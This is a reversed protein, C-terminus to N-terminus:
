FNERRTIEFCYAHDCPKRNPRTIHLGENSLKWEIKEKSGILKVDLIEGEYLKDMSQIKFNKNPWGLSIAFLKNGKTTFRFDKATYKIKDKNDSFPGSVNMKTPGEGYQDWTQTDFIAKGNVELWKGIGKLINKDKEPITGDPKPGINLLMLGNKSVNDILYHVLDTISKYKSGKMYAWASGDHVTTDTIWNYHTLESERGLELDLIGSGPPLDHWKYSIVVERNWEKEKNYYYSLFDKRYKEHIYRLGFDFWVYDPRYNDVVEKLRKLWRDHFVKSPKDQKEYKKGWHEPYVAQNQMNETNHLEGYLEQFQKKSTDFKKNWHPFFFWNEAHHMAVMYKMGKSRISKELEGVVDRKPGMKSACWETDSCNWMPFGDHHEAVPGAFKAGSLYYLDAWEEPDFNSAKFMPIFDKYGFKSPHGYVKCHHEYQPSPKRYMWYPYWTVNPGTAPVSYVGWHAYIGFKAKKFWNPIQHNKISEWTSTYKQSNM